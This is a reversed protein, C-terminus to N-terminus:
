VSVVSVRNVNLVENINADAMKKELASPGNEFGFILEDKLLPIVGLIRISEGKHTKFQTAGPPFTSPKVLLVGIFRQEPDLTVPTSVSGVLHGWSLSTKHIHPYRALKKLLAFPWFRHPSAWNKQDQHIPWDSPLCLSVEAHAKQKSGSNRMALDSMGSTLLTWHQRFVTPYIVNIDVHIIHSEAEHMVFSNSGFYEDMFNVLFLQNQIPARPLNWREQEARVRDKYKSFSAGSKNSM